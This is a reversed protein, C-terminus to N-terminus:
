FRGRGHRLAPLLELAEIHISGLQAAIEDLELVLAIALRHNGNGGFYFEGDPGIHILVGGMERYGGLELKSRLRGEMKVQDFLRDLREYREIVDKESRCGDVVGVEEIQKTLRQLLGTSNWDQGNIWHAFCGILLPEDQLPSKKEFGITKKLVRGSSFAQSGLRISYECLKPNIFIREAFRPAMKGWHLLNYADRGLGLAKFGGFGQLHGKLSRVIKKLRFDENM